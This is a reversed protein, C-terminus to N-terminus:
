GAEDVAIVKATDRAAAARAFTSLKKLWPKGRRLSIFAPHFV